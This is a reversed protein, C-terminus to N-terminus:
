KRFKRADDAWQTVLHQYPCLVLVFLSGSAQRAAQAVRTTLSLATLTKGTGTAMALIGRGDARFWADIADNQYDRLVLGRPSVPGRVGATVAAPEEGFEPDRVPRHAPRWACCLNEPQM